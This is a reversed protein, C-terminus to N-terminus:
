AIIISENVTTPKNKGAEIKINIPVFLVGGERYILKIFEKEHGMIGRTVLGGFAGVGHLVHVVYDGINSRSVMFSGDLNLNDRIRINLENLESSCYADHSDETFDNPSYRFCVNSWVRSSMIELRPHAEVLSQLYDALGVYEEVMRGWGADGKEKRKIFKDFDIVNHNNKSFEYSKNKHGDSSKFNYFSQYKFQM